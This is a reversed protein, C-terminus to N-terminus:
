GRCLSPTTTLTTKNRCLCPHDGLIKIGLDVSNISAAETGVVWAAEGEQDEEEEGTLDEEEEELDVGAGEEATRGETGALNLVGMGGEEWRRLSRVTGEQEEEKVTSGRSSATARPHPPTTAPSSNATSAGQEEQQMSPPSARGQMAVQPDTAGEPQLELM